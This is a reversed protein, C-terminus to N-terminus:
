ASQPNPLIHLSDVKSGFFGADTVAAQLTAVIADVDDRSDAAIRVQAQGGNGKDDLSSVAHEVGPIQRLANNVSKICAVCGMTPIDLQVTAILNRSPPASSATDLANRRNWVDLAEPLLAVSWRLMTTAVRSTMSGNPRANWGIFTLYLLISMFYPRAPGLIKNFGACGISLVNMALQLLCCASALLPVVVNIAVSKITSHCDQTVHNMGYTNRTWVFANGLYHALFLTTTGALLKRLSGPSWLLHYSEINFSSALFRKSATAWTNRFGKGEGSTEIESPAYGMQIPRATNVADLADTTPTSKVIKNARVIPFLFASGRIESAFSLWVVLAGVIAANLDPRVM